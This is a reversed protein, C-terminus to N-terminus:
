ENYKMREFSTGNFKYVGEEHTGLWLEGKSDKYISFLAVNKSDVTVPYHTVMKGNYRYVGDNYTTFWLDGQKDEVASMFYINDTGNASKIGEIGNEREYRILNKGNETTSDSSITYRYRTNCFWYKGNKDELISRIGFSGGNPIMTLHDEYLWSHSIGDYRCVGFNSTGFWMTGKSDSYIYYVEYPSWAKNPFQKFYDDAMYHKPFELQYLQLGDYRYPGNEGEKGAMSFWLDNSQLKWNNGSSYDKVPTLTTLTQGDFKNIGGLSSIFINGQKDEQISRIRNGSLGNKTSFQLMTKGDFSFLGDKDSGFWYTGNRAQFVLIISNSLESVTDGIAKSFNQADIQAPQQGNCSTLMKLISLFLVIKM